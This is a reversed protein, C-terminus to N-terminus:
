PGSASPKGRAATVMAEPYVFPFYWRVFKRGKQNQQRSVVYNEESDQTFYPMISLQESCNGYLQRCWLLKVVEHKIDTLVLVRIIKQFAEESHM